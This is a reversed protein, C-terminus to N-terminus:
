DLNYFNGFHLFCDRLNQQCQCFDTFPPALVEYMIKLLDIFKSLAKSYDGADYLRKATRTMM